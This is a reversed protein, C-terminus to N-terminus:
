SLLSRVCSAAMRCLLLVNENILRVQRLMSEARHSALETPLACATGDLETCRLHATEM